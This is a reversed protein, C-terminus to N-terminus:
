VISVSSFGSYGIHIIVTSKSQVVTIYVSFIFSHISPAFLAERLRSFCRNVITQLTQSEIQIRTHNFQDLHAVLSFILDLLFVDAVILYSYVVVDNGIVYKQKQERTLLQYYNLEFPMIRLQETSLLQQQMKQPANTNETIKNNHM